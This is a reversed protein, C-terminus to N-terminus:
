QCAFFDLGGSIRSSSKRIDGGQQLAPLPGSHKAVQKGVNKSWAGSKVGCMDTVTAELVRHVFLLSGKQSGSQLDASCKLAAKHLSARWPGYKLQLRRLDLLPHKRFVSHCRLGNNMSNELDGPHKGRYLEFLTMFRREDTTMTRRVSSIAARCKRVGRVKCAMAVSKFKSRLPRQVKSKVRVPRSRGDSRSCVHKISSDADAVANEGAVIKKMEELEETCFAPFMADQSVFAM